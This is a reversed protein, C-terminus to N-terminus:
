AHIRLSSDLSDYLDKVADALALIDAQGQDADGFERLRAADVVSYYRSEILGGGIFHRQFSSFVSEDDVADIGRTVLLARSASFAIQYLLEYRKDSAPAAALRKRLDAIRKLDIGIQDFLGASCEGQGRGVLSFPKDAGWDTYYSPEESFAPVNLFRECILKIEDRGEAKVYESFSAFRHKNSLWLSIVQRTFEPLDRAAVTGIPEALRAQGDAHVGGAVVGYAPYIDKDRHRAQGYFGLDAYTHQGCSNPCGSLNLQFSPISDLDLRAGALKESAAILAPKPLCIGL